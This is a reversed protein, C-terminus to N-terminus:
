SIILRHVVRIRVITGLRLCIWADWLLECIHLRSAIRSRHGRTHCNAASDLSWHHNNAFSALGTYQRRATLSIATSYPVLGYSVRCLRESVETLSRQARISAISWCTWASWVLRYRFDSCDVRTVVHVGVGAMTRIWIRLRHLLFPTTHVTCKPFWIQCESTSFLVSHISRDARVVHARWCRNMRASGNWLHTIAIEPSSTGSGRCSSWWAFQTPSTTSRLSTVFCVLQIKLDEASEVIRIEDNTDRRYSSALHSEASFRQSRLYDCNLVKSAEVGLILLTREEVKIFDNVICVWRRTSDGLEVVLYNLVFYLILPWVFWSAYEHKSWAIHIFLTFLTM